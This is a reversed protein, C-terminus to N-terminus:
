FFFLCLLVQFFSNCMFTGPVCYCLRAHQSQGILILYKLSRNLLLIYCFSGRLITSQEKLLANPVMYECYLITGHPSKSKMTLYVTRSDESSQSAFHTDSQSLSTLSPLELFSNGDFQPFFVSTEALFSFLFLLWQVPTCDFRCSFYVVNQEKFYFHSWM